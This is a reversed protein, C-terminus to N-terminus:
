GTLHVVVWLCAARSGLGVARVNLFEKKPDRTVRVTERPGLRFRKVTNPELVEIDGEVGFLFHEAGNLPFQMEENGVFFTPYVGARASGRRVFVNFDEAPGKVTAHTEWEGKFTQARLPPVLKAERSEHALAIPLGALLVFHRDYGPFASFPGSEPITAWSLRWRFPSATDVAIERTEGRGNKWPQTQYDAPLLHVAELSMTSM